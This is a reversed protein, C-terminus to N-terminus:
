VLVQRLLATSWVK